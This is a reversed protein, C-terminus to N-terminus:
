KYPTVTLAVCDAALGIEPFASFFSEEDPDPSYVGPNAHAWADVSQAEEDSIGSADGNILYPLAWSPFYVEYPEDFIDNM